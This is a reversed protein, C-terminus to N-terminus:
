RQDGEIDAGTHLNVEFLFAAGSLREAPIAVISQAGQTEIRVDQGFRKRLEALEGEEAATLPRDAAETLFRPQVLPELTFIIIYTRLSAERAVEIWKDERSPFIYDTGAALLNDKVGWALNPQATLFTTRTEREGPAIIYLYGRWSPVFHFKLWRGRVVPDAGAIREARGTESEVQL